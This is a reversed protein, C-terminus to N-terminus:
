DSVLLICKAIECATELIAQKTHLSDFVRNQVMDMSQSENPTSILVEFDDLVNLQKAPIGFNACELTKQKVTIDQITKDPPLSANNCLTEPIIKLSKIFCEIGGRELSRGHKNPEKLYNELMWMSFIEFSGAGPIFLDHQQRLSVMTTYLADKAHRVFEECQEESSGRIIATCTTPQSSCAKLVTYVERLTGPHFISVSDVEGINDDSIDDISPAPRCNMTKCTFDLETVGINCICLIGFSQLYHSVLDHVEGSCVLVQVGFNQITEAMNKFVNEEDTKWNKLHEVTDLIAYHKTKTRQRHLSNKIALLRYPKEQKSLESISTISTTPLLVSKPLYENISSGIIGPIQVMRINEM